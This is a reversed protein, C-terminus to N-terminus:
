FKRCMCFASASKLILANISRVSRQFTPTWKFNSLMRLLWIVVGSSGVDGGLSARRSHNFGLYVVDIPKSCNILDHPSLLHIRPPLNQLSDGSAHFTLFPLTFLAFSDPPLSPLVSDLLVSCAVRNYKRSQVVRRYLPPFGISERFVTVQTPGDM